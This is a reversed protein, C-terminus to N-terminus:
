FGTKKRILRVNRSKKSTGGKKHASLINGVNKLVDGNIKNNIRWFMVSSGNKSFFILM